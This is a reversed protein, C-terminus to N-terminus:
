KIFQVLTPACKPLSFCLIIPTLIVGSLEMLFAQVKFVLLESVEYYVFTTHEKGKWSLPYHHTFSSM